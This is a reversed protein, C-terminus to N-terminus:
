HYTKPKIFSNGDQKSFSFIKLIKEEKVDAYYFDQAMRYVWHKCSGSFYHDIEELLRLYNQVRMPFKDLGELKVHNESGSYKRLAFWYKARDKWVVGCGIDALVENLQSDKVDNRLILSPLYIYESSALQLAEDKRVGEEVAKRAYSSRVVFDLILPYKNKLEITDDIITILDELSSEPFIERLQSLVEHYDIIQDSSRSFVYKWVIEFAERVDPAQSGSKMTTKLADGASEWLDEFHMEFYEIPENQLEIASRAFLSFTLIASCVISIYKM